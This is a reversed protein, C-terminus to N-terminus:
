DLGYDPEVEAGRGRRWWAEEEDREGEEQGGVEQQVPGDDEEDPADLMGEEAVVAREMIAAARRYDGLTRRLPEFLDVEGDHRVFRGRADFHLVFAVPTVMPKGLLEHTLWPDLLVSPFASELAQRTFAGHFVGEGRVVCARSDRETALVRV